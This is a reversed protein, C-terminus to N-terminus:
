PSLVTPGEGQMPLVTSSARTLPHPPGLQALRTSLAPGKVGRGHVLISIPNVSKEGEGKVGRTTPLVPELTMLSPSSAWGRVPQLEQSLPGWVEVLCCLPPPKLFLPPPKLLMPTLSGPQLPMLAPSSVRGGALPPVPYGLQFLTSFEGYHHWYPVAQPRVLETGCLDLVLIRFQGM